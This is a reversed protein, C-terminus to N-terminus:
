DQGKPAPTAYMELGPADQRVAKMRNSLDKGVAVTDLIGFPRPRRTWDVPLREYLFRCAPYPDPVGSSSLFPLHRVM